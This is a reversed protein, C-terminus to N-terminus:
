NSPQNRWIMEHHIGQEAIKVFGLRDYLKMAPNFVEVHLSVSWDRDTAEAMLDKILTTGIRANRYEPLLAIDMLLLPDKSRDVILRGIAVGDRLIIQYEAQPYYIKYHAMQANSQM